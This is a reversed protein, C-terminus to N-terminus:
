LSRGLTWGNASSLNRWASFARTGRINGVENKVVAATCSPSGTCYPSNPGGLAAEFFPQATVPATATAGCTPGAGACIQNYVSAWAQAFSQGNLTTMWPVADLNIEQFENYIKRGIYGVEMSM